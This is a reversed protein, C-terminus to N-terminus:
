RLVITKTNNYADTGNPIIIPYMMAEETVVIDCPESVQPFIIHQRQGNRISTMSIVGSDTANINTGLFNILIFIIWLLFPACFDRALADTSPLPPGLLSIFLLM